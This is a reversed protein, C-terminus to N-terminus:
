PREVRVRYFGAEGGAGEPDEWRVTGGTGRVMGGGWGTLPGEVAGGREVRYYRGPVTRWEVVGAGAGRVELRDTPGLPSTGAEWEGADLVGDGDADTGIGSTGLGGFWAREWGDPLGDQDEDGMVTLRALEVRAPDVQSVVRLVLEGDGSTVAGGRVVVVIELGDGVAVGPSEWGAGWVASPIEMGPGTGAYVSVGGAMVNSGVTLGVRYRDALNGGNVVRVAFRRESGEPAPGTGSGAPGAVAVLVPWVGEPELGGRWTGDPVRRVEGAIAPEALDAVLVQGAAPGWEGRLNGAGSEFALYRGDRSFAVPYSPESGREGDRRVSVLRTRARLRDHVLTQSVAGTGCPAVGSVMLWRGDPSIGARRVELGGPMAGVVEGAERLTRTARDLLYWRSETFPAGAALDSAYSFFTVWRGDDSVAGGGSPGNGAVGNTGASVLEVEGTGRDRLYVDAFGNRDTEVLNGAQSTFVVYRGDASLVGGGSEADGVAGLRSRSVCEVTGTGLDKVFVDRTGNTDGAVLNDAMSTFAVQGGAGALFASDSGRNGLRGAASESVRRIAGTVLDRVFVDEVRNDDGPVLNTARSEFAVWRGDASISPGRSEANAQASAGADSVRRLIGAQRDRIFVDSVFNTDGGAMLRDSESAFVVYRGDGSPQPDEANRDSPAGDQGRSVLEFGPPSADGRAVASVSDADVLTGEARVAVRVAFVSEGSASTREQEVRLVLNSGVALVPTEWGAGGLAVTVESGGDPAWARCSWGPAAVRDVTVRFSRAADGANVLRLEHVAIGGGGLSVESRQGVSAQRIGGGAWPGSGAPRIALDPRDRGRDLVFVDMQGNGDGPVLNSAYSAFAVWRGDGNPRGLFVTDDATAGAANLGLEEVLGTLRDYAFVRYMGPAGGPALKPDASSFVLWRGDLSLADAFGDGAAGSGDPVASARIVQGTERDRLFVGVWADAAGGDLGDALSAFAIWRGDGSIVPFYSDAEGEVGGAGVSVREMAGSVRDRVFCDWAENGDGAVLNAASSEFVVWRGDASISPADSWGRAEVGRLGASVRETMRRGRDRVFVDEMGNRDGAVLDTALSAYAVVMGDASLAPMESLGNGAARGDARVSVLENTGSLRDWVYVDETGNGDTAGLNPASTVYAVFRGDASVAPSRSDGSGGIGAVSQSVRVVTNSRRDLLFVDDFGERDGAVLNTASSGFAVWRGDASISPDGSPGNGWRGSRAPSGLELAGGRGAVSPAPTGEPLPGTVLREMARGLNLRGGSAVVGDWAPDRDVSELLLARVQGATLDPRRAWLLAAAGSVQPAAMSTGSLVAYRGGRPSTSLIAVGPAGLDVTMRGRNSASWPLACTTSAAVGLIEPVDYGVPFAPWPDNDQGDNGASCVLLIGAAGAAEMAEKLAASASGGGWSCNAVRLNVGRRRWSVLYDFARVIDSTFAFGDVAGVRVAMLRVEWCVGAVGRGNNGVAGIIGAVHTGHGADDTPDGDRDLVDVGFVDDVWGNGDDDVGNGPIEGPNRWLNPRLDPHTLDIGTDLVAVVGNSSGTTTAWANTAGIQGLAYLRPMEPDDPGGSHLRYRHDPEAVLVEPRKRFWAVAERAGLDPPLAIVRWGPLPLRAVERAGAPLPRGGQLRPGTADFGDRYKVLVQRADTTAGRAAGALCWGLLGM